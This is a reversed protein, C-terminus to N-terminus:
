YFVINTRSSVSQNVWDRVEINFRYSGKKITTPEFIAASFQTGSLDQFTKVVEDGSSNDTLTMVFYALDGDDSLALFYSLGTSVLISDYIGISDIVPSISDLESNFKIQVPLNSHNGAADTASIVCQYNGASMSDTVISSYDIFFTNDSINQGISDKFFPLVRNAKLNDDLEPKIVISYFGLLDNDVLTSITNITDKASYISSSAPSTVYITPATKDLQKKCASFCISLLITLGLWIGKDMM